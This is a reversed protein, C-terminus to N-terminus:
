LSYSLVSKVVGEIKFDDAAIFPEVKPNLSVLIINEGLSIKKILVEGNNVCVVIDGNEATDSKKAIVLDGSNIKPYMSDGNAKVMFAQNSPFKLIRSSIPIKSVPNGDLFLGRPGCQAMGYLNLYTVLKEPGSDSIQYDRPNSPNRHLYGLKELQVIHYQVLSPSSLKLEEQLERVTLPNDYTNKLLSLLKEQVPHLKKIM